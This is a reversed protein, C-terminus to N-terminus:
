KTAQIRKRLRRSWAFGAAAGLMPLPGPIPAISLNGNFFGTTATAADPYVPVPWFPDSTPGFNFGSNNNVIGPLFSVASLTGEAGVNGPNNSFDGVVGIVFGNQNTPDGTTSDTLTVLPISQWFYAGQLEYTNGETFTVKDILTYDGIVNGGNSFSWLWVEYSTGSGWNTPQNSFGLGDITVNTNTDFFFGFSGPQTPTTPQFAFSPDPNSYAPTYAQAPNPAGVLACGTLLGTLVAKPFMNKLKKVILPYMPHVALDNPNYTAFFLPKLLLPYLRVTESCAVRKIHLHSFM